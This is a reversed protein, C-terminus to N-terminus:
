KLQFIDPCIVILGTVMLSGFVAIFSGHASVTSGSNRGSVPPTMATPPTTSGGTAPPVAGDSTASLVNIALKQGGQCHGQITCIYYHEGTSNLTVYAPSTMIPQGIVNQSTCADFSAKEVEQVDHRGQTFNFVGQGPRRPVTGLKTYDLTDGVVFNKGSAWTTYASEDSIPVRWGITDGVVHDTQAESFNFMITAIAVFAVMCILRDM